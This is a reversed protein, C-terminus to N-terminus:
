KIVHWLAADKQKPDLLLHLQQQNRQLERSGSKETYNLRGNSEKKNFFHSVPTSYSAVIQIAFSSGINASKTGNRNPWDFGYESTEKEV